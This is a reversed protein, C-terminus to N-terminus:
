CYIRLCFTWSTIHYHVIGSVSQVLLYYRYLSCLLFQFAWLWPLNSLVNLKWQCAIANWGYWRKKKNVDEGSWSKHIEVLEVSRFNVIIYTELLGSLVWVRSWQLVLEVLDDQIALHLIHMLSHIPLLPIDL